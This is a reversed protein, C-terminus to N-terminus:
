VWGGAAACLLVRWAMGIGDLGKICISACPKPWATKWSPPTPGSALLRPPATPTSAVPRLRPGKAKERESRGAKGAELQELDVSRSLLAARGQALCREWRLVFGTKDAEQLFAQGLGHALMQM